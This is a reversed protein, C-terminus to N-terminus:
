HATETAISERVVSVKISGPYTLEDEVERAISRALEWAAADDVEDPLVMVRIERGAQMAFAKDVGKHAGAISEL